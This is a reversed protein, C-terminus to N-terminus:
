LFDYENFSFLESAERLRRHIGQGCSQYCHPIVAGALELVKELIVWTVSSVM